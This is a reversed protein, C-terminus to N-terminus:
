FGNKLIKCWFLQLAVDLSLFYRRSLARKLTQQLSLVFPM